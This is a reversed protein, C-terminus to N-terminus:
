EFPLFSGHHDLKYAVSPPLPGNIRDPHLIRALIRAGEVVRPGPRSFYSTADVAFVNHDRVARLDAWGPMAAIEPYREVVDETVYGCPMLVIVDPDALIVDDFPIPHSREGPTNFADIGGAIEIMEPVWHGGCYVPDLWEAALVRPRPAGRVTDRIAVVEARLTNAEARGRDPVGLADAAREISAFINQLSFPDLSVVRAGAPMTCVADEVMSTPVACVECLAQTLIVDPALDRLLATDLGYITHADEKLSRSVAEDIARGSMRPDLLNSTLHPLADIGPPWDCEHTVGVLSDRLGLQAVIETASPLLSAIRM